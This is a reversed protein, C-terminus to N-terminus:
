DGPAAGHAKRVDFRKGAFGAPLKAEACRHARHGTPLASVLDRQRAVRAAAGLRWRKM